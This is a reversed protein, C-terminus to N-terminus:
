VCLLPQPVVVLGAEWSPQRDENMVTFYFKWSGVQSAQIM